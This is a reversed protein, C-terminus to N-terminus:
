FRSITMSPSVIFVVARMSSTQRGLVAVINGRRSHELPNAFQRGTHTSFAESGYVERSFLGTHRQEGQGPDRDARCRGLRSLAEVGFARPNAADRGGDLAVSSRRVGLCVADSAFERITAGSEQLCQCPGVATSRKAMALRGTVIHRAKGRHHLSVFDTAQM